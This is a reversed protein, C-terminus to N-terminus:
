DAFPDRVEPPEGDDGTPARVENSLKLFYVITTIAVGSVTLVLFLIAAFLATSNRRRPSSPLGQDATAVPTATPGTWTGHAVPETARAHGTPETAAMGAAFPTPNFLHPFVDNAQRWNAWGERWLYCHRSVRGEQLWTRMVSGVAPGYQGGARNRVYWAAEPADAIWDFAAPHATATEVQPRDLLFSNPDLDEFAQPAVPRAEQTAHTAKFTVASYEPAVKV